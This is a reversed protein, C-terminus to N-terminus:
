RLDELMGEELEEETGGRQRAAMAPSAQVLQCRPRLAPRTCLRMQWRDVLWAGRRRRPELLYALM